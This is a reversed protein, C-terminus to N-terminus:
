GLQTPLQVHHQDLARNHGTTGRLTSPHATTLEPLQHYHLAPVRIAYTHDHIVWRGPTIIARCGLVLPMVGCSPKRGGQKNAKWLEAVKVLPKHREGPDDFAFPTYRPFQQIM